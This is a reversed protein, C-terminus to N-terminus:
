SSDGYRRAENKTIKTYIRTCGVVLSSLRRRLAPGLIRQWPVKQLAPPRADQSGAHDRGCLAAILSFLIAAGAGICEFRWELALVRNCFKCMVAEARMYRGTEVSNFGLSLNFLDLDRPAAYM